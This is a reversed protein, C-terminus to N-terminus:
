AVAFTVTISATIESEGAEIPTASDAAVSKVAGGYYVPSAIGQEVIATAKGLTLGAQQALRAAKARADDFATALARKYLDAQNSADFSPGSVGDAGAEVAADVIAGTTAAKRVKVTVSNTAEYAVIATGDNNMRAGVSVYQTRLDAAAVGAAKLAAIVKRMEAGNARLAERASAARSTLSFTWVAIDPVVRVSGLGNVTIQPPAATTEAGKAGAGWAPVALVAAVVGLAALIKLSKM